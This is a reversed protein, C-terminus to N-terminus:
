SFCFSVFCLATDSEWHGFRTRNEASVPHQSIPVTDPINGRKDKKQM